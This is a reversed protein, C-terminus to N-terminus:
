RWLGNRGHCYAGHPTWFRRIDGQLLITLQWVHHDSTNTRVRRTPTRGRAQVCENCGCDYPWHGSVQRLLDLLKRLQLATPLLSSMSNANTQAERWACMVSTVQARQELSM